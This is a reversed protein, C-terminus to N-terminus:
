AGEELGGAARRVLIPGFAHEQRLRVTGNRALELGALLTSAFAARREIPGGVIGPLFQDLSTWDPLSGLLAGLRQPAQRVRGPNQPRPTDSRAGARRRMAMLYARVLSGLDLALRSRDIETHDEPAGRAFVDRGLQPRGSLWAAGARMASLDRLREALVGAAEEGEEAEAGDPLLLRSKLWALWAAMVLWDAALELRVRRAGEIM